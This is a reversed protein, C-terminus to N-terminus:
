EVQSGPRAFGRSEILEVAEASQAWELFGTIEDDAEVATVVGLPRIVTYTGNNINEVSAEVGDLELYNVAVDESLGYGLSFYGIAGPTDRLGEVMDPEYFLNVASPTVDLDDGLVYERLIIKASEDENRDLIVIPLDPGGFETWNEHKGAYIDRVQQSTL